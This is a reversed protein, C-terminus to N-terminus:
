RDTMEIEQKAPITGPQFSCQLQGGCRTSAGAAFGVGGPSPRQRYCLGHSRGDIFHMSLTREGGGSLVVLDAGEEAGDGLRLQAREQQVAVGDAPVSGGGARAERPRGVPGGGVLGHEPRDPWGAESKGPPPLPSLGHGLQCDDEGGVPGPWRARSRSAPPATDEGGSGGGGKSQGAGGGVVVM